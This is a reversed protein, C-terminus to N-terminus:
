EPKPAATKKAQDAECEAVMAPLLDNMDAAAEFDECGAAAHQMFGAILQKPFECAGSKPDIYIVREGCKAPLTVEIKPIVARVLAEIAEDFSTNGKSPFSARVKLAFPPRFMLYTHSMLEGSTPSVQVHRLFRAPRARKRIDVTLNKRDLWEYSSYTGAIRAQEMSEVFGDRLMDLAVEHDDHVGVLYAFLDVRLGDFEDSVYRVRTGEEPDEAQYVGEVSFGAVEKPHEVEIRTSQAGGGTSACSALLLTCIIALLFRLKSHVSPNMM